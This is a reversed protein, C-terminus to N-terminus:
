SRGGPAASLERAAPRRVTAGRLRRALGAAALILAGVGLAAGPEPVPTMNVATNDFQGVQTGASGYNWFFGFQSLNINTYTSDTATGILNTVGRSPDSWGTAGDDRVYLSWQSTSPAYSVRVSAYNTVGSLNATGAAVVATLSADSVIGNAFREFQIRDSQGNHGITVAYGNATTLDSGTAGLVFALGPKGSNFGGGQSQPAYRMNFTWDISTAANASLTTNYGGGYASTPATVFVRGAGNGGTASNTLQLYSSGVISAGGDGATVTTTYSAPAGGTLSARNFNDSFVTTQGSAPPCGVAVLLVALVRGLAFHAGSAGGPRATPTTSPACPLVGAFRSQYFKM